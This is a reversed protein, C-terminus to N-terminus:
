FTQNLIRVSFFDSQRPYPRETFGNIGYPWLINDQDGVWTTEPCHGTHLFDVSNCSFILEVRNHWTHPMSVGLMKLANPYHLTARLCLAPFFIPFFLPLSGVWGRATKGASM